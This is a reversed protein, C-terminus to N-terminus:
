ETPDECKLAWQHIRKAGVYASYSISLTIFAVIHIGVILKM